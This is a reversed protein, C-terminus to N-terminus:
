KLFPRLSNMTKLLKHKLKALNPLWILPNTTIYKQEPTRLYSYKCLSCNTWVSNKKITNERAQVRLKLRRLAARQFFATEFYIERWLRIRLEM